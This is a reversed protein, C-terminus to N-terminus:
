MKEFESLTLAVTKTANEWHLEFKVIKEDDEEKLKSSQHHELRQQTTDSCTVPNLFGDSTAIERSPEKPNRTSLPFLQILHISREVCSTVRRAPPPFAFPTPVFRM